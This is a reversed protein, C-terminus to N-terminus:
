TMHDASSRQQKQTGAARPPARSDRSLVCLSLRVEIYEKKREKKKNANNKCTLKSGADMYTTSNKIKIKLILKLLM